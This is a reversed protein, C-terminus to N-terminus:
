DLRNAPFPGNGDTGLTFGPDTPYLQPWADVLGNSSIIANVEPIVPNFDGVVVGRGALYLYSAIISLQQPRQSPQIPLSDLHVSALRIRRQVGALRMLFCTAVVRM